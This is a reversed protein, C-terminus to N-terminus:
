LSWPPAFTHGGATALFGVPSVVTASAPSSTENRLEVETDPPLILVDGAHATVATAGTHLTVAGESVVMLQEHDLSHVGSSAGAPLEARWTALEASGRSPVALPRFHIAGAEFHPADTLQAIPM